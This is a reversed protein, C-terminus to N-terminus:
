PARVRGVAIGTLSGLYLQGGHERVSTIPAFADPSAHQLNHVVRGGPDIGLVFAHRKPGPQLVRPLRVLVKRAWTDDSLSDLLANRPAFLAVWFVGRERSYTVNDPFGPLNDFFVESTGARPGRLWYRLLRYSGTEAVILSSADASLAVGNAFQLGSLLVEPTSSGPRLAMLRGHGGHEIMDELYHHQGWKSSADTFYITGDPAVDADDTFGFRTGGAATALTTLTDGASLRLLGRESDCVVLAGERDVALGLPRGGTQARTEFRTAGPRLVVIRGDALGAHVNGDADVAVAEPGQLNGRDLWEVGALADNVAYAGTLEPAPPASWAQPEVAVPWAVLYLVVLGVVVIGILRRASM